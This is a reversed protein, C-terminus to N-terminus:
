SDKHKTKATSPVHVDFEDKKPNWSVLIIEKKTQDTRTGFGSGGVSSVTETQIIRKGTDIAFEHKGADWTFSIISAHAGPLKKHCLLKRAGDKKSTIAIWVDKGSPDEDSDKELLIAEDAIGDGNFDGSLIRGEKQVQLKEQRWLSMLNKDLGQLREDSSNPIPSMLETYFDYDFPTIQAAPTATEEASSKTLALGTLCISVTLALMLVKAKQMIM